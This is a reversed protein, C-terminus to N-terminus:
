WNKTFNIRGKAGKARLVAAAYNSAAAESIGKVVRADNVISFHDKLIIINLAGKVEGTLNAPWPQMYHVISAPSEMYAEKAARLDKKGLIQDVLGFFAPTVREFGSTGPVETFFWQFTGAVLENSIASAGSSHGIAVFQELNCPYTIKRKLFARYDARLRADYDKKLKGDGHNIIKLKATSTPWMTALRAEIQTKTANRLANMTAESRGAGSLVVLVQGSPDLGITPRSRVYQYLNPGDPHQATPDRQTFQTGSVNRAMSPSQPMAAPDRQMWRGLTPHYMRNRAFADQSAAGIAAFGVLISVLVTRKMTRGRETEQTDKMMTM